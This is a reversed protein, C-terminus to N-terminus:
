SNLEEESLVERFLNLLDDGPTQGKHHRFFDVFLGEMDKSLDITKQHDLNLIGGNRIEPIVSVLGEHAAYLKRRDEATLFTDSVMTLEVLANQNGELWYLAEELSEARKRLLRKGTKLEVASFVAPKGPYAEILQVYKKQNAESFSYALPSGSYIVPVPSESVVQSRHLHGLATYQIQLPIDEAYILQAGGIHLIPKEDDPEEAILDGDMIMLHSLMINVGEKDCYRDAIKKWSKRLLKRMEEEQDEQGLYTKLRYENAYPTIIVRLPEKVEPLRLSFFGEESHEISLGTELAFVPVKSNPYGAFIIGCERALPDPAEIRGPSDHNGAIAIVARQGNASM